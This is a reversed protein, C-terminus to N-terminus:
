LHRFFKSLSILNGSFEYMINVLLLINDEKISM